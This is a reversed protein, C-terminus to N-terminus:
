SDNRLVAVAQNAAIGDVIDLVTFYRAWQKRVYAPSHIVNIYYTPDDLVAGLQDNGGTVVFGKEEVSRANGRSIRGLGGMAPGQFSVMLIAGPRTIRKLERLWRFQREESLHTLVSIGIVLDFYGDQYMTPPLLPIHSFRGYSLNKACWDINDADIDAGYFESGPVSYFHRAVRGCGCGWDLIRRFDSFDRQLKRALYQEFRKFISAGGQVFQFVDSNCNIREIRDSEPMPISQEPNAFYWASPYTAGPLDSESDLFQFCAFGDNFIEKDAIDTQCVFNADMSNPINCFHQAIGPSSIPYAVREFAQGNMLFRADSPRQRSIAWGTIRLEDNDILMEDILWRIKSACAKLCTEDIDLDSKKQNVSWSYCALLPRSTKTLYM